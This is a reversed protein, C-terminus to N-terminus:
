ATCSIRCSSTSGFQRPVGSAPGRARTADGACRERGPGRCRGACVHGDGAHHPPGPGARDRGAALAPRVPRRRYSRSRGVPMLGPPRAASARSGSRGPASGPAPGWGSRRSRKCRARCRVRPQSSSGDRRDRAARRRGRGSDRPGARTDPPSELSSGATRPVPGAAAAPVPRSRAGHRGATRDTCPPGECAPSRTRGAM